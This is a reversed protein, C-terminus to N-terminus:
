KIASPTPAPLKDKRCETVWIDYIPHDMAALAPSSAFMWGSYLLAQAEGPKQETIVLFAASEPPDEPPARRCAKVVISLSGFAVAQDIGTEIHSVRATIKDLAQLEAVPMDIMTGPPPAPPLPVDEVSPPLDKGAKDLPAKNPSATETPADPTAGMEDQARASVPLSLGLCLAVCIGWRSARM